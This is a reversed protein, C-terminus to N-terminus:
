WAGREFCARAQREVRTARCAELRSFLSAVFGSLQLRVRRLFRDREERRDAYVKLLEPTTFYANGGDFYDVHM